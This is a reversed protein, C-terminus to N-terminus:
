TTQFSFFTYIYNFLILVEVDEATKAIKQKIINIVPYYNPLVTQEKDKAKQLLQMIQDQLRQLTDIDNIATKYPQPKSYNILLGEIDDTIVRIEDELEDEAIKWDTLSKMHSGISERLVHLKDILPMAENLMREMDVHQEDTLMSRDYDKLKDLTAIMFQELNEINTAKEGINEPCDANKLDVDYALLQNALSIKEKLEELESQMVRMQEKEALKDDLKRQM